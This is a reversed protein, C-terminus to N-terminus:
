IRSWVSAGDYWFYIAAYNSNMTVYKLGGEISQTGGSATAFDYGQVGILINNTAATGSVDKIVFLRGEESGTSGGLPLNIYYAAGPTINYVVGDQATPGTTMMEKPSGIVGTGGFTSIDGKRLVNAANTGAPVNVATGATVQINVGNNNRFWLDGDTGTSVGYSYLGNNVGPHATQRVWSLYKMNIAPYVAGVFKNFDLNGDITIGDVGIQAGQGPSHNHSDITTLATNLDSAWTPGLREGPTPLILAMNTTTSTEAM